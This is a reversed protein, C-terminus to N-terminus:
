REAPLLSTTGPAEGDTSGCGSSQLPDGLEHLFEALAVREDADLYHGVLRFLQEPIHRITLNISCEEGGM